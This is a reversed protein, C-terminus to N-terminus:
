MMKPLACGTPGAQEASCGPWFGDNPENWVGWSTQPGAQRKVVATVFREWATWNGGRGPWLQCMSTDSLNTPLGSCNMFQSVDCQINRVGSERLARYDAPNQCAIGRYNGMRLPDMFKNGFEPGGNLLGACARTAPRPVAGLSGFTAILDPQQTTGSGGNAMNAPAPAPPAAAPAVYTCAHAAGSRRQNRAMVARLMGPLMHVHM